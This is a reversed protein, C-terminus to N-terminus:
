KILLVRQRLTHTRTMLQIIYVGSSLVGADWQLRHTGPELTKHLIEGVRRGLLDIVTLSVDSQEPMQIEFRTSANFPNPYNQSLSYAETSEPNKTTSVVTTASFGPSYAGGVPSVTKHLAWLGTGDPSRTVSQAIPGAISDGRLTFPKLLKAGKKTRPKAAGWLVEDMIDNARPNFLIVNDTTDLLNTKSSSYYFGSDPTGWQAAFLKLSPPFQKGFGKSDVGGFVVTYEKPKLVVNQPFTFIPYANKELIRYGSIDADTTGANVIEIFEDGRPSRVGDGNVDGELLPTAPDDAPIDFLIENLALKSTAVPNRFLNLATYYDFVEAITEAFKKRNKDTDRVGTMNCEIQVGSIPGGSSSGHRQTNYGGSWFSPDNPSPQMESPTAPYGRNEFFSGLSRPGRLLQSFPLQAYQILTRISSANGYAPQDLVADTYSLMSSTLIYGLELRQNPHGHGHLDIYFGKGYQKVVTQKATDIFSQFEKWAQVAAPNGGKTAQPLDRNADLKIRSLHCIIIHPYKGERAFVAESVSRALERVNSDMVTEGSDRDPIEVPKLIGGHPASLIYPTDGAIYEIYENRGFYSKGPIFTTDVFAAFTCETILVLLITLLGRWLRKQSRESAYNDFHTM